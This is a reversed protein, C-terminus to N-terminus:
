RDCCPSRAGEMFWTVGQGPTTSEGCRRTVAPGLGAGMPPRVARRHTMRRWCPAYFTKSCKLPGPLSGSRADRAQKRRSCHGGSPHGALASTGCPPSSGTSRRWPGRLSPQPPSARPCRGTMATSVATPTSRSLRTTGNDLSIRWPRRRRGRARMVGGVTDASRMERAEGTPNTQAGPGRRGTCPKGPRGPRDHRRRRSRPSRGWLARAGSALGRETPCQVDRARRRRGV